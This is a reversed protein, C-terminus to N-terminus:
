EERQWLLLAVDDSGFQQFCQACFARISHSILDTIGNCLDGALIRVATRRGRSRDIGAEKGVV